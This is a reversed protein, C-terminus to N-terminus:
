FAVSNKMKRRFAKSETQPNNRTVVRIYNRRRRRREKKKLFSLHVHPRSLTIEINLKTEKLLSKIKLSRISFGV